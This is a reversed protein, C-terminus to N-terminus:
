QLWFLGPSGGGASIDTGQSSCQVEGYFESCGVGQQDSPSRMAVSWTLVVEVSVHFITERNSFLFDIDKKLAHDVKQKLYRFFHGVM